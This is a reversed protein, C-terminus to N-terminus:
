ESAECVPCRGFNVDARLKIGCIIPCGQIDPSGYSKSVYRLNECYGGREIMAPANLLQKRQKTTLVIKMKIVQPPDATLTSASM